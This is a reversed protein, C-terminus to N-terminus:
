PLGHLLLVVLFPKRERQQSGEDLIILNLQSLINETMARINWTGVTLSQSKNVMRGPTDKPNEDPQWCSETLM